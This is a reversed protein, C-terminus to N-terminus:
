VSLDNPPATYIAEQALEYALPNSVSSAHQKTFRHRSAEANM